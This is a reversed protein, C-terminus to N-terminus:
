SEASAFELDTGDLKDLRKHARDIDRRLWRIEVRIAAVAAIGTIVGGALGAVLGSIMAGIIQEM